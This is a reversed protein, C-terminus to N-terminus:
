MVPDGQGTASGQSARPTPELKKAVKPGLLNPLCLRYLMQQPVRSSHLVRRVVCTASRRTNRGTIQKREREGESGQGCMIM